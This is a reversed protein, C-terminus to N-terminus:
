STVRNQLRVPAQDSVYACAASVAASTAKRAARPPVFRPRLSYRHVTQMDDGPMRVQTVRQSKAVGDGDGSRWLACPPVNERRETATGVMVM